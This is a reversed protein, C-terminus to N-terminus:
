PVLATREDIAEAFRELPIESGDAPVHVVEAGRLEQAHWIQGVTPFEFDSVVVRPRRRLRARERRGLRRGLGLDDRRRRDPAANVLRAFTARATESREVWYDWPAGREDWGTLYADYAARVADSLAGQSCSNAYVLREFIPFRHRCREAVTQTEVAM